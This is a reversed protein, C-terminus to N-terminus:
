AQHCGTLARASGENPCQDILAGFSNTRRIYVQSEHRIMSLFGLCRDWWEERVRLGCDAGLRCRPWPTESLANLAASLAKKHSETM